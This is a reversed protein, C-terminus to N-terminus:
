YQTNIFHMITSLPLDNVQFSFIIKIFNTEKKSYRGVGKIGEGHQIWIDRAAAGTKM